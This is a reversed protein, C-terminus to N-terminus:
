VVYVARQKWFTGVRSSSLTQTTWPPDLGFSGESSPSTMARWAGHVRKFDLRFISAGNHETENELHTQVRPIDIFGETLILTRNSHIQFQLAIHWEWRQVCQGESAWTTDQYDQLQLPWHTRPTEYLFTPNSVQGTSRESEQEIRLHWRREFLLLSPSVLNPYQNDNNTSSLKM